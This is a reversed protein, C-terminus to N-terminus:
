LARSVTRLALVEGSMPCSNRQPCDRKPVPQEEGSLGRPHTSSPGSTTVLEMPDLNSAETIIDEGLM